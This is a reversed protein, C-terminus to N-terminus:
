HRIVDLKAEFWSLGLAFCHCEMRLFARISLGIHNRQAKARRAQCREVGCFQKIGRHYEEIRWSFEGYQLRTLAAMQVDSRGWYDRPAITAVGRVGGIAGSGPLPVGRGAVRTARSHVV